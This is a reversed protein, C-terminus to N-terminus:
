AGGRPCAVVRGGGLPQFFRKVRLVKHASRSAVIEVEVAFPAYACGGLADDREGNGM